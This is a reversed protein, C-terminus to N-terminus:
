RDGSMTRGDFPFCQPLLAERQGVLRATDPNHDLNFHRLNTLRALSAPLASLQNWSVDLSELQCLLGIEDPLRTLKMMFLSLHRLSPVGALMRCVEAVDLGPNEGLGLRQLRPLQSLCRPLHRFRNARIDLDSLMSLHSMANPLHSLRNGTLELTRLERLKGVTDPLVTLENHCLDLKRLHVLKGISDPVAKLANFSLQLGQLATLQGITDPLSELTETNSCFLQRLNRLMGISEPLSRLPNGGIGLFELSPFDGIWDPLEALHNGHLDLSQLATLQPLGEPLTALERNVVSVETTEPDLDFLEEPSTTQSSIKWLSEDLWQLYWDVFELKLAQPSRIASDLIVDMSCDPDFPVHPEDLLAPSWDGDPNHIWMYGRDPGSLILHYYGGCGIECVPLTGPASGDLQRMEEVSAPVPFPKALDDIWEADGSSKLLARLPKVGYDPGAGGDAFETVFRRYQEPLRCGIRTEIQEVRKATLRRNLHYQHHDSAFITRDPDHEDLEAVMKRIEPFSARLMLKRWTPDCQKGWRDRRLRHKRYDASGIPARRMEHHARLFPGRPDGREDLWDAYALRLSQDDPSALIAQIFAEDNMPRSSWKRAFNGTKLWIADPPALDNDVTLPPLLEQSFRCPGRLKIKSSSLEGHDRIARLRGKRADTV